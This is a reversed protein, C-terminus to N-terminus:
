AAAARIIEVFSEVQLSAGGVLLGGVNDLALIDRANGPKVSGGYLIRIDRGTDGRLTTLLNRVVTHSAVIDESTATKGTGIAWVPEYAISLQDARLTDRVDRLGSELQRALVAALQGAEREQLTEGICLMVKLGADLAFSTKRGVFDPSEGLINRRESHGALVWECGAELLMAPAIEGTFAGEAAPYVDQGGIAAGPLTLAERTAALATFPPFILVDCDAQPVALSLAAATDRAEVITKYMKWNAAILTNM